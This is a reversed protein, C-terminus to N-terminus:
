PFRTTIGLASAHSKRNNQWRLGLAQGSSSTASAPCRLKGLKRRAAINGAVDRAVANVSVALQSLFGGIHRAIKFFPVIQDTEEDPAAERKLRRKEFSVDGHALDFLADVYRHVICVNGACRRPTNLPLITTLMRGIGYAWTGAATAMVAPM